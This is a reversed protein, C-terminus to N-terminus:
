LTVGIAFLTALATCAAVVAAVASLAARKPCTSARLDCALTHRAAVNALEARVADRTDHQTWVNM